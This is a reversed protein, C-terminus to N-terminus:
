DPTCNGTGVAQPPPAVRTRAPASRAQRHARLRHRALRARHRVRHRAGHRRRRDAPRRLQRQARGLPDLLDRPQRQRHRLHRQGRRHRPSRVRASASPSRATRPTASCWPRTAADQGAVGRLAPRARRPRPVDLVAVDGRPDFVVVTAPVTDSTAPTSASPAPAPSSTRTPSSATGPTSSARGRSAATASRRRATSRSRRASRRGCRRRDRRALPRGAARAGVRDLDVAPRRARAPFREPEPLERLSSYLGRVDQPM